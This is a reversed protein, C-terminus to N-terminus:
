LLVAKSSAPIVSSGVVTSSSVSASPLSLSAPHVGIWVPPSQILLWVSCASPRGVIMASSGSHNWSM